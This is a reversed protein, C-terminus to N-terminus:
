EEKKEEKRKKPKLLILLPLLAVLLVHMCFYVSSWYRMTSSYTLLLFGVSMYEFGKTRIIWRFAICKVLFVVSQFYWVIALITSKKREEASFVLDEVTTCLPITLFSLYYGPHVGHWYASVAM